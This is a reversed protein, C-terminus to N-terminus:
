YRGWITNYQITQWESNLLKHIAPTSLFPSSSSSSFAVFVLRFHSSFPVFSFSFSALLSSYFSCNSIGPSLSRLLLHLCDLSVQSLVSRGLGNFQPKWVQRRPNSESTQGIRVCGLWRCCSLRAFSSPCGSNTSRLSVSYLPQHWWPFYASMYDAYSSRHTPGPRGAFICAARRM